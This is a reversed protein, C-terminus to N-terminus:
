FTLAMEHSTPITAQFHPSPLQDSQLSTLVSEVMGNFSIRHILHSQRAEETEKPKVAKQWRLIIWRMIKFEIRDPKPLPNLLFNRHCNKYSKVERSLSHTGYIFSGM